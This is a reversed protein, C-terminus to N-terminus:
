QLRIRRLKSSLYSPAGVELDAGGAASPPIPGDPSDPGRLSRYRLDIRGILGFGKSYLEYSSGSPVYQFEDNAAPDFCEDEPAAERLNVPLRNNKWRFDIIRAHLGLLRLQTRSRVVASVLQDYSARLNMGLLKAIDDGAGPENADPSGVQISSVWKSEPQQLSAVQWRYSDDVVKTFGAIAAQREAAPQQAISRLNMLTVDEYPDVSGKMTQLWGVPDTTMRSLSLLAFEHQRGLMAAYGFPEKMAASVYAITRAADRQSLFSLSREFRSLVISQSAIGVLETVTGGCRIRRSFTLGDLLLDLAKSSKGDAFLAYCAHDTIKNIAKFPGLEPQDSGPAHPNWARKGNGAQILRFIKDSADAIRQQVSLYDLFRLSTAIAFKVPDSPRPQDKVDAQPYAMREWQEPEWNLAVDFEPSMAIEAARVYDGYGNTPDPTPFVQDYLSPQQLAVGLLLPLM